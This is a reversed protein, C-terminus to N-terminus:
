SVKSPNPKIFEVIGIGLNNEQIVVQTLVWQRTECFFRLVMYNRSPLYVESFIQIKLILSLNLFDDRNNCRMANRTIAITEYEWLLSILNSVEEIRHLIHWGGEMM